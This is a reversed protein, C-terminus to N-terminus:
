WWAAAATTQPSSTGVPRTSSWIAPADALTSAQNLQRLNGSGPDIAFATVAGGPKGQFNSIENVAYLFQGNPHLALFSPSRIEAALVPSSLSGTNTDFGSLYIGRSKAGTYTGFYVRLEKGAPGPSASQARARAVSFGLCSILALLCFAVGLVPKM